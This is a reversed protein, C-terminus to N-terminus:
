ERPLSRLFLVKGPMVPSSIVRQLNPTSKRREGSSVLLNQGRSFSDVQSGENGELREESLKSNKRLNEPKAGSSTIDINDEGRNSPFCAKLSTLCKLVKKMSGQLVYICRKFTNRVENYSLMM